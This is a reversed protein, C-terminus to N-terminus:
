QKAAALEAKSTAIFKIASMIVKLFLPKLIYYSHGHAIFGDFIINSTGSPTMIMKTSASSGWCGGPSTPASCVHLTHLTPRSSYTYHCQNRTSPHKSKVVLNSWSMWTWPNSPSGKNVLNRPLADWTSKPKSTKGYNTQMPQTLIRPCLGPLTSKTSTDSTSHILQYGPQSTTPKDSEKLHVQGPQLLHKGMVTGKILRMYTDGFNVINKRM